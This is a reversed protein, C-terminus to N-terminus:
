FAPDIFLVAERCELTLTSSYCRVVTYHSETCYQTDATM